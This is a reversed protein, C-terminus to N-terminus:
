VELLKNKNQGLNEIDVKHRKVSDAIDELAERNELELSLLYIIQLLQEQTVGFNLIEAVIQRCKLLNEAAIEAESKGMKM